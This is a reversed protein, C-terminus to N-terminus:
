TVFVSHGYDFLCSFCNSDHVQFAFISESVGGLQTSPTCRRPVAHGVIHRVQIGLVYIYLRIRTEESSYPASVDQRERMGPERRGVPRSPTADLCAGMLCGAHSCRQILPVSYPNRPCIKMKEVVLDSTIESGFIKWIVEVLHCLLFSMSTYRCTNGSELQILYTTL